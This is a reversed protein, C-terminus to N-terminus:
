KEKSEELLLNCFLITTCVEGVTLSIEWKHCFVFVLLCNEMLNRSKTRTEVNFETGISSAFECQEQQFELCFRVKLKKV